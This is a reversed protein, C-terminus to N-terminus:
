PMAKYIAIYRRMVHQTWIHFTFHSDRNFHFVSVLRKLIHTHTLIRMQFFLMRLKNNEIKKRITHTHTCTHAFIYKLSTFLIHSIAVSLSLPLFRKALALLLSHSRVLFPYDTHPFIWDLALVSSGSFNTTWHFNASYANGM